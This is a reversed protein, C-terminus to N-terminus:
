YIRLLLHDNCTVFLFVILPPSNRKLRASTILNAPSLPGMSGNGTLTLFLTGGFREKEGSHEDRISATVLTIEKTENEIM